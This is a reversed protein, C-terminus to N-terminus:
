RAARLRRSARARATSVGDLDVTAVMPQLSRRPHHLRARARCRAPAAIPAVVHTLPSLPSNCPCCPLAAVTPLPATARRRVRLHAARRRDISRRAAQESSAQYIPPRTHVRLSTRFFYTLRREDDRQRPRRRRASPAHAPAMAVAGYRAHTALSPLHAPIRADVTRRDSLLTAGHCANM